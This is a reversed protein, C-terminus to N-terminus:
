GYRVTSSEEFASIDEEWSEGENELTQDEEVENESLELESEVEMIRLLIRETESM